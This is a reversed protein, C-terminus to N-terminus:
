NNCRDCCATCPGTPNPGPWFIKGEALAEQLLPYCLAGSFGCQWCDNSQYSGYKTMMLGLVFTQQQALTYDNEIAEIYYDCLENAAQVGLAILPDIIDGCGCDEECDCEDECNCEDDDPPCHDLMQFMMCYVFDPIFCDQVLALLATRFDADAFSALYEMFEAMTEELTADPNEAFFQCFAMAVLEVDSPEGTWMDLFWQPIVACGSMFRESFADEFAPEGPSDAGRFMGAYAPNGMLGMMAAMEADFNGNAATFGACLADAAQRGLIALPDDDEPCDDFWLCKFDDPLSGCTEIRQMFAEQFAENAWHNSFKNQISTHCASVAAETQAAAFCDCLEDAAKKGEDAPNEIPDDKCGIFAVMLAALFLSSLFKKNIM